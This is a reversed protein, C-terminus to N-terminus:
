GRRGGQAAGAAIAIGHADAEAAAEDKGFVPLGAEFWLAGAGARVMARVTELGVAPQDLRRDQATRAVKIVTTGPGALEGARLIARDTGEAGEVAVVHRNKLILTQGIELDALAKARPRGVAIDAEAAASLPTRTLLGPPCLFPALFPGPDLVRLGQTALFGVLADLVASAGLDALRRSIERGTEDLGAEGALLVGPGVKGALLIDEVGRAKFFALIRAVEGAAVPEFVDAASALAPDAEGRVAAIVIEDYGARRAEAAALRPFAGSGALIGLKRGM